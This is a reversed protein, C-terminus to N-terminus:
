LDKYSGNKAYVKKGNQWSYSSDLVKEYGDRRRSATKTFQYYSALAMDLAISKQKLIRYRKPNERISQNCFFISFAHWDILGTNKVEDIYARSERYFGKEKAVEISTKSTDGAIRKNIKKVEYAAKIGIKKTSIEVYPKLMGYTQLRIRCGLVVLFLDCPTEFPFPISAKNAGKEIAGFGEQVLEWLAKLVETEIQLSQEVLEPLGLDPKGKFSYIASWYKGIVFYQNKIKRLEALQDPTLGEPVLQFIDLLAEAIRKEPNM